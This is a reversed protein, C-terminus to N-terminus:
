RSYPPINGYGLPDGGGGTAPTLPSTSSACVRVAGGSVLRRLVCGVRVVKKM